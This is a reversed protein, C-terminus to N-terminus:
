ASSPMHSEHTVLPCAHARGIEGCKVWVYVWGCVGGCCVVDFVFLVLGCVCVVCVVCVCVCLVCCVFCLVCIVCCGFMVCCVCVCVCVVAASSLIYRILFVDSCNLLVLLGM